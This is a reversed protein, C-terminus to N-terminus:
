NRREEEYGVVLWDTLLDQQSQRNFIDLFQKIKETGVGCAFGDRVATVEKSRKGSKDKGRYILDNWEQTLVRQTSEM